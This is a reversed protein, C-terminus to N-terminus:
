KQVIRSDDYGVLRGSVEVRFCGFADHVQKGADVLVFTRCDDHHSMVSLYELLIGSTDHYAPVLCAVLLFASFYYVKVDGDSISFM